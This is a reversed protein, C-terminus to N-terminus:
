RDGQSINSPQTQSNTEPQLTVPVLLGVTEKSKGCTGRIVTELPEDPLKKGYRTVRFTIVTRSKDTRVRVDEVSVQDSAAPFFHVDSVPAKWDIALRFTGTKKDAPISGATTLTEKKPKRPLRARWTDFTKQNAASRKKGVTVTTSAEATGPICQTKCALFDARASLKIDSVHKLDELLNKPPTIEALLMVQDAYGFSIIGGSEEFRIPVPWQLPGATFGKPLDFTISTALGAQGPNKWYVHWDKRIDLLVGVTFPKGPQITCTDSLLQATALTKPASEEKTDLGGFPDTEAPADGAGTLGALFCAILLLIRNDVRM